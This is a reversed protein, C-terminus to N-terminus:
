RVRANSPKMSAVMTVLKTGSASRDSSEIRRSTTRENVAIELDLSGSFGLCAEETTM